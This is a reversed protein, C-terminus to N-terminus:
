AINSSYGVLILQEFDVINEFIHFVNLTLLLFVVVVHNVNKITLKSCLECRKKTNKNNVRFLHMNAPNNAHYIYIALPAAWVGAIM